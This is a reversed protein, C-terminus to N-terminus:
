TMVTLAAGVAAGALVLGHTALNFRLLAAMSALAVVLPGWAPQGGPLLVAEGFFLALNAMVGVVAATIATLAAAAAPARALHEVLPAGALIFLFSPLFTVYTVLGAGLLGAVLPDLAGPQKFAALFGVYELVLITPGPTTEALALGDVMEGASLWGHLAVAQDAIYPLVAYAGGFTVFASKTFLATLAPFIGGGALWIALLVPVAWLLLFLVALRLVRAGQRVLGGRTIPVAGAPAAERRGAFLGILGAGIVVLPFPAQLLQLALLAGLAVLLAGTTNLARRGLRWLAAAVIGVVVPKVGAFLGAVLPAEGHAAAIYALLAMVLAGPLVFLTGTIAAGRWGALRWGVFTALQQAEPGPLLMCFNLARLYTAEDLWRRRAVVEDHMLALQGAVGGFSILGIRAFLRALGGLGPPSPPAVPETM